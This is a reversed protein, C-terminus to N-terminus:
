KEDASVNATTIFLEACLVEVIDIDSEISNASAITNKALPISSGLFSSRSGEVANASLRKCQRLGYLM